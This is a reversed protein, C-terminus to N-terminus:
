HPHSSRTWIKRMIREISAFMGPARCQGQIVTKVAGSVPEVMRKYNRTIRPSSIAEARQSTEGVRVVVRIEM